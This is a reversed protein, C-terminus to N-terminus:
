FQVPDGECRVNNRPLNGNTLFDRVYKSASDSRVALSTHGYGQVEVLRSNQFVDRARKASALPTVPDYSTSLILLPHMTQVGSLPVFKHTKEIEWQARVHYEEIQEMAHPYKELFPALLNLFNQKQPWHERGSVGDNSKIIKMHESSLPIPEKLGYAILADTGNGQMLQALNHALARWKDQFFLAYFMASRIARSDLVGYTESDKYVSIPNDNLSEIFTMVRNRLEDATKGLTYLPCTEGAKICEEFFGTFVKDTDTFRRPQLLDSYWEFLDVVGDIIIRESRQPFMTAYTQGLASGYSFGWYFMTDQGLADIINNMDVATQPTNIYKGHEGMTEACAKTFNAAWALLRPSDKRIDYVAPPAYRERKEQNLYGIALPHSEGVGRPDFAVIHFTDGVIERLRKGRRHILSLGSSGPGGPNVLLNHTASKGRRRLLPISFTKSNDKENRFQDVPVQIYSRELEDDDKEGCLTWSISEGNYKRVLEPEAPTPFKTKSSM